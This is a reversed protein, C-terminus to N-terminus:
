CSLAICVGTEGLDALHQIPKVQRWELGYGKVEQPKVVVAVAILTFGRDRNSKEPSEV